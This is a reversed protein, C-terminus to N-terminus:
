ELVGLSLRWGAGSPTGLRCRAVIKARRTAQSREYLRIPVGSAAPPAKAATATNRRARSRTSTTGGLSRKAKAAGAPELEPVVQLQHALLQLEVGVLEGGDPLAQSVCLLRGLRPPLPAAPAIFPPM